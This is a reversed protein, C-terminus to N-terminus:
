AGVAALARREAVTRLLEVVADAYIDAGPAYLPRFDVAGNVELVVLAAVLLSLLQKRRVRAPM